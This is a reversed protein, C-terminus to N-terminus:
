RAGGARVADDNVEGLEAAAENMEAVFAPISGAEHVALLAAVNNASPLMLAELAQRESLHEGARKLRM